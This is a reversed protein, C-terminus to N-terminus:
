KLIIRAPVGVAIANEPVDELVVSNAGIKANNGIKIPGLIKAGTGIIVNNGIIPVGPRDRGGILGGLTVNTGIFVNDGIKCNPHIVIGLGDYAFTVNEGVEIEPPIVASFGHRIVRRMLSPLIPVKKKHM